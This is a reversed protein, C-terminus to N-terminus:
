LMVLDEPFINRRPMVTAAHGVHLKGVIPGHDFVTWYAAAQGFEAGRVALQEADAQGIFHIVAYREDVAEEVRGEFAATRAAEDDQPVDPIGQLEAIGIDIEAVPDGLAPFHGVLLAEAGKLGQGRLAPSWDVGM